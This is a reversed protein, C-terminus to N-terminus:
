QDARRIGTLWRLGFGAALMGAAVLQYLPEIWFVLALCGILGAWSVARPYRREAPPQQLACLNALAYYILVTVASFSWTVTVDGLLVLGTIVLGMVVVAAAPSGRRVQGLVAPMDGQRGMAFLVRSLGLVLNLLVGLMATIAAISLAAAISPHGAAQAVAELPAAGTAAAAFGSPGMVGIATAAVALYVVGTVSLTAIVSRPITRAPDQVEEGLTAVRGYGTYAVFLLATAHLLGASGDPQWQLPAVAPLGSIVLASLGLLTISVLIANVLSSRRIGTLVLGTMGLCLLLAAPTTADSLGTVRSLYAAAGLAATAASASKACLYMWGAAFGAHPSLYRYGYAYTGGSVPHAAALQASSLGNCTALAAALLLAPLVLAGGVGAAIALSVFVGTGMISGLGLLIAGPLGIGRELQDAM